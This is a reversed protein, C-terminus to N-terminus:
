GRGLWQQDHCPGKGCGSQGVLVMQEAPAVHFEPIDLIPLESGDPQRFAKKVDKLHLM